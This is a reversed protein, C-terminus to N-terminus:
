SDPEPDPTVDIADQAPRNRKIGTDLYFTLKPAMSDTMGLYECVLQLAPLKPYLKVKRTTITYERSGDKNTTKLTKETISDIAAALRDPIDDSDMVEVPGDKSWKTYAKLNSFAIAALEQLAREETVELKALVATRRAQLERQVGEHALLRTAQQSASNKSYGAAIAADTANPTAAYYAVFAMQKANLQQTERM